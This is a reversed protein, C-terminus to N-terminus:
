LAVHSDRSCLITSIKEKYKNMRKELDQKNKNGIRTKTKRESFVREQIQYESKSNLTMDYLRM